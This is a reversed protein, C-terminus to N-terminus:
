GHFTRKTHWCRVDVISPLSTPTSAELRKKTLRVARNHVAPLFLLGLLAAALFGIGFNVIWDIM